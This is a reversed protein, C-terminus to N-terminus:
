FFVEYKCLSYGCSCHLIAVIDWERLDEEEMRRM